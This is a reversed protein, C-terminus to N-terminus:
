AVVVIFTGMQGLVPKGARESSYINSSLQTQMVIKWGMDVHRDEDKLTRVVVAHVHPQVM